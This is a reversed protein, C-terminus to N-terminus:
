ALPPLSIIEVKGCCGAGRRAYRDPDQRLEAFSIKRDVLRLSQNSIVPACGAMFLMASTLLILTRM